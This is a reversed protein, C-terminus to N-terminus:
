PHPRGPNAGRGARGVQGFSCSRGADAYKRHGLVRAQNVLGAHALLTETSLGLAEAILKLVRVSPQHRGRELRSLYPNPLM